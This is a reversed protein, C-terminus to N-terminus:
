RTTPGSSPKAGTITFGAADLASGDQLATDLPYNEHVTLTDFLAEGAPTAACRQIDALPVYGHAQAEAQEAQLKALWGLLDATEDVQVRVPLTNIFLGVMREVGSLAAPRGAVTAGFVMDTRGTYRALLIAWAGQLLTNLTLRHRRAFAQLHRSLEAPLTLAHEGM